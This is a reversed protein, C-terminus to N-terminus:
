NGEERELAFGLYDMNKKFQEGLAKLLVPLDADRAGWAGVRLGERCTQGTELAYIETMAVDMTDLVRKTFLAGADLWQDETLYVM